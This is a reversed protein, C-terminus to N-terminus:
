IPAEEKPPIFTLDPVWEDNEAEGRRSPGALPCKEAGKLFAGFPRDDYGIWDCHLTPGGAIRSSVCVQLWEIREGNKERCPMLGLHRWKDVIKEVDAGNMAGERLLYKDHWITHGLDQAFDNLYAAFGGPYVRDVDDIRIFVDFFEQAVAM